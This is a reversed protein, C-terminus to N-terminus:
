SPRTLAAREEALIAHVRDIVYDPDAESFAILESMVIERKPKLAAGVMGWEAFARRAVGRRDITRLGTHRPDRVIRALTRDLDQRAGELIQLFVGDGIVLAGTIEDRRNNRDSVAIIEAIAQLTPVSQTATSAYIVRELTLGSM